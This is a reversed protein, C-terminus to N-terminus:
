SKVFCGLVRALYILDISTLVAVPGSLIQLFFVQVTVIPNLKSQRWTMGQDRCAREIAQPSLESTWNQKFHRIVDTISRM